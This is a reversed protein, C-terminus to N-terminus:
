PGPWRSGSSRPRVSPPPFPSAAAEPAGRAACTERSTLPSRRCGTLRDLHATEAARARDATEAGTAQEEIVATRQVHVVGAPSGTDRALPAAADVTACARHHAGPTVIAPPADGTAAPSGVLTLSPAVPESDGTEAEAKRLLGHGGALVPVTLLSTAACPRFPVSLDIASKRVHRVTQEVAIMLTGAPVEPAPHM